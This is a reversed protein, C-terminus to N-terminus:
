HCPRLMVRQCLLSYSAVWLAAVTSSSGTLRTAISILSLSRAIWSTATMGTTARGVTTAIFLLSCASTLPHSLLVQSRQLQYLSVQDAHASSLGFPNDRWYRIRRSSIASGLRSPMLATSNVTSASAGPSGNLSSAVLGLTGGSTRM